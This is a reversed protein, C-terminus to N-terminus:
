NKLKVDTFSGNKIVVSDTQQNKYLTFHFTGSVRQEDENIDTIRVTGTPIAYASDKFSSSLSEIGEAYFATFFSSSDGASELLSGSYSGEALRWTTINILRNDVSLGSLTFKDTGPIVQAQRLAATWESSQGEKKIEAKMEAEFLTGAVTTATDTLEEKSCAYMGLLALLLM